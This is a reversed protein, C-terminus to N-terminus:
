FHDIMGPVSYVPMPRAAQIQIFSDLIFHPETNIAIVRSMPAEEVIFAPSLTPLSTFNQALHWVDLPTAYTSRFKGTIMSPKYRMEAWREQYAFTARNQIDGADGASASAVAYIEDNTIAQEGLNALAPWYFDYKTSRKFMRNIGQQYSIDARVNVLGLLVGHETFSKSFGGNMSVSTGFGALHGQPYTGTTSSMQPVPTIQVPATSGGLYEPRQLRADPSVVNFHSRVIETYRTGGRADRELLRQLQFAQRLANITAATANSLDAYMTPISSAANGALGAGAKDDSNYFHAVADSATVPNVWKGTYDIGSVSTGYKIDASTGLPLSVPNAAKQPFPLSSTFYDHRKCRRLLVYDSNTDPGDDLDVVVAAQLNEDRFWENWILNYARHWLSSVSLGVIGTPLGFYDSLTGVAWGTSVPSVIQPITYATFTAPALEGMFKKFNTWILRNPVFFYFTELYLNDMLPAIPTALRAFLTANLNFTDGPVVEDVFFPVLFGEDFTTKVSHSRNFTSRQIDASPVQAFVHQSQTGSPMKM